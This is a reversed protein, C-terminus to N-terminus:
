NAVWIAVLGVEAVLSHSLFLRFELIPQGIPLHFCPYWFWRNAGGTKNQAVGVFSFAARRLETGTNPNWAQPIAVLKQARIGVRSGRVEKEVGQKSRGGFGMNTKKNLCGGSSFSFVRRKLTGAPGM